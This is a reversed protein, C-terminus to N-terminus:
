GTAIERERERSQKALPLLLHCGGEREKEALFPLPGAVGEAGAIEREKPLTISLPPSGRARM